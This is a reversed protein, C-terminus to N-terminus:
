ATRDHPSWITTVLFAAQLGSLTQFRWQALVGLTDAVRKNSLNLGSLYKIKGASLGLTKIESKNDLKVYVYSRLDHYLRALRVDPETSGVWGLHTEWPQRDWKTPAKASIASRLRWFLVDWDRVAESDYVFASVVPYRDAEKADPMLVSVIYTLLEKNRTVPPNRWFTCSSRDALPVQSELDVYSFVQPNEVEFKDIQINFRRELAKIITRDSGILVNKSKPKRKDLLISAAWPADSM